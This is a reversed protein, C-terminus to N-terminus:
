AAKDKAAKKAEAAAKRAARRELRPKAEERALEVLQGPTPARLRKTEGPAGGPGKVYRSARWMGSVPRQRRLTWGCEKLAVRAESVEREHKAVLRDVDDFFSM